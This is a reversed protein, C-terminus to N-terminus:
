LRASSFKIENRLKFIGILNILLLLGGSVSMLTLAISQDLFSFLMFACVAYVLYLKQGISSSIVKACKMGVALYGLVTTWGALFFFIAMLKKTHPLYKSLATVVCDFVTKHSACWQGTSLVLIVTLTCIACDTFLSFIATRAQACPDAIRTESQIVADYGMGIDGSYVAKSMGYNVAMAFTSGAFGGIPAHGIFASELVIKLLDVFDVNSNYIAYICVVTYVVLFFPMLATCITSLRKIGGLTVYITGTLLLVMAIYQNIGFAEVFADEIVKFQFIEVGYICLLFSFVIAIWKPRFAHMLYYPAGGDFGGTKNQTRYKIGLFIEAYKVLMGIFVAVWMWFLGGPGGISVATICAGVNGIGISGGMSSFYLRIPSIGNTEKQKTKKLISRFTERPSFITKIQFFKSKFSLYCGITMILIFDIYSWLIDELFDIIKLM